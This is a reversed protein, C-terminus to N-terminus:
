FSFNCKCLEYLVHCPDNHPDDDSELPYKQRYGIELLTIKEKAKAIIQAYDIDTHNSKPAPKTNCNGNRPGYATM